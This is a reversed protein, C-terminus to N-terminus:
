VDDGCHKGVKRYECESRLNCSVCGRHRRSVPEDSMGAVATISKTPTLLFQRNTTLGIRKPANLQELFFSQMQIPFDGYGPSFRFTFYQNPYKVALIDDVQHGVQEVAVSALVDLVVAQSMDTVQAARLLRDIGGGLTCCVLAAQRCGKLHMRIDRGQMLEPCPLDIVKTLYRPQATRLIKKECVDLLHAMEDNMEVKADGLYRVAEARNLPGLTLM